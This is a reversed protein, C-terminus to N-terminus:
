RIEITGPVRTMDPPYFNAGPPKPGYGPVFPRNGDLRDWPGYNIEAFRRLEPDQIKDLLQRKNGFAQQWFLEDMVRAAEVLLPAMQREKVSLRAPDIELKFTAYKGVLTETVNETKAEPARRCGALLMGVALVAAIKLHM